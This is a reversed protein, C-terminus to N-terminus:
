AAEGSVNRKSGHTESASLSTVMNVFNNALRATTTPRARAPRPPTLAHFWAAASQQAARPLQQLGGGAHQRPASPQARPCSQPAAPRSPHAALAFTWSQQAAPWCHQSWPWAHQTLYDESRASVVKAIGAGRAQLALSPIRM